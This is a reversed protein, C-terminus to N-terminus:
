ILRDAQRSKKEPKFPEEQLAKLGKPTLGLADELSLLDRRLTELTVVVPSKKVGQPGSVVFPYKKKRYQAYITEFEESLKRYRRITSDFEPKYVGLAKMRDAIEQEKKTLKM